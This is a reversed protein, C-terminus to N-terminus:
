GDRPESADSLFGNVPSDSKDDLAPRNEPTIRLVSHEAVLEDVLIATLTDDDPNQGLGTLLKWCLILPLSCIVLVGLTSLVPALLSDRLREAAIAQRETELRNHQEHLDKQMELSKSTAEVGQEIARRAGDAVERNLRSMEKNQEAQRQTAREAYGALRDDGNDCGALLVTVVLTMVGKWIRM